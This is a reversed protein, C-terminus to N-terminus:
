SKQYSITFSFHIYKLILLDLNLLLLNFSPTLATSRRSNQVNHLINVIFSVPLSIISSLRALSILYVFSLVLYKVYKATSNKLDTRFSINLIRISCSLYSLLYERIVKSGCKWSTNFSISHSILKNWFINLNYGLFNLTTPSAPLSCVSM